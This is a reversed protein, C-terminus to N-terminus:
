EQDEQGKQKKQDNKNKIRIRIRRRTGRLSCRSQGRRRNRRIKRINRIGSSKMSIDSRRRRWGRM